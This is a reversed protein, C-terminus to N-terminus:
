SCKGRSHNQDSRVQLLRLFACQIHYEPRTIGQKQQKGQSSQRWFLTNMTFPRTRINQITSFQYCCKTCSISGAVFLLRWQTQFKFVCRWENNNGEGAPECRRCRRKPPLFPRGRLPVSSEGPPPRRPHRLSYVLHYSEQRVCLQM